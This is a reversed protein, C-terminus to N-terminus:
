RGAAAGLLTRARRATRWEVALWAIGIISIVAFGGIELVPFLRAQEPSPKVIWGYATPQYQEGRTLLLTLILALQHMSDWLAHLVSVGLYALILAGTVGFRGRRRAAFLVGGVIATWLGHGLPAVVGRLIETQVLSLGEATFLATFAYGASEFAAFGFGVAAGLIMGDRV